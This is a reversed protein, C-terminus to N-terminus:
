RQLRQRCKLATKVMFKTIMIGAIANLHRVAFSLMPVPRVDDFLYATIGNASLVCASAKAFVDSNLRTDFSIAVGRKCADDGLSKIYDALAQTARKVTYVNLMNTGLGLLGRMGATGFEVDKAFRYEIEKEDNSISNLEDVETSTVSSLWKKYLDKYM